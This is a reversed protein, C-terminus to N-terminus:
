LYMPDDQLEDVVSAYIPTGVPAYGPCDPNDCCRDFGGHVTCEEEGSTPCVYMQDCCALVKPGRTPEPKMSYFRDLIRERTLTPDSVWDTM